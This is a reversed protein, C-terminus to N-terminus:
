GSRPFRYFIHAGITETHVLRPAWYPNVYNAHYHTADGTVPTSLGMMAHAAIQQAESWLGGDPPRRAESGDCTFSFQCSQNTGRWSLGTDRDTGEYVVDCVNNPYLRHSVRNLVVEAVALQGLPSESRAEYYIARSLCDVDIRQEQAAQFHVPAFTQFPAVAARDSVADDASPLAALRALRSASSARLSTEDLEVFARAKLRWANDETQEEARHELEPLGVVVVAAVGLGAVTRAAMRRTEADAIIGAMRTLGTHDCFIRAYGVLQASERLLAKIPASVGCSVDQFCVHASTRVGRGSAGLGGLM